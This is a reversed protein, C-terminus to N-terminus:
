NRQVKNTKIESELKEIEAQAARSKALRIIAERQKDIQETAAETSNKVDDM